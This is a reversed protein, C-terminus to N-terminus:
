LTHLPFSSVEGAGGGGGPRAFTLVLPPCLPFSVPNNPSGATLLRASEAAAREELAEKEEAKRAARKAHREQLGM